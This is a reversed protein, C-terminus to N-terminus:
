MNVGQELTEIILKSSTFAPQTYYGCWQKVSLDLCAGRDSLRWM